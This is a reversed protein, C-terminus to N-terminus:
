ENKEAELQKAEKEQRRRKKAEKKLFAQLMLKNQEQNKEDSVALRVGGLYGGAGVKVQEGNVMAKDGLGQLSKQELKEGSNHPWLIYHSILQNFVIM